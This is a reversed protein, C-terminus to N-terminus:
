RAPRPARRRRRLALALGGAALTALARGHEDVSAAGIRCACAGGRIEEGPALGVGGGGSGGTGGGGDTDAYCQGTPACVRGPGCESGGLSCAGCQGSTCVLDGCDANTSCDGSPRPVCFGDTSCLRDTSCDSDDVCPVGIVCDGDKCIGDGPCEDNVTCGGPPVVVDPVDDGNADPPQCAAAEGVDLDGEGLAADDSVSRFYLNADCTSSLGVLSIDVMAQLYGNRASNILIPDIDQGTEATAQNPMPTVGVYATQAQDWTWIQAITGNGRVGIVHEYGGPSTDTTFRADIEAAAATGGTAMNRDADIFVYVTVQASAANPDSVYVRAWFRQADTAAYATRVDIAQEPQEFNLGDGAVDEAGYIWYQEGTKDIAVAENLRPTTRMGVWTQAAASQPALGGLLLAALGVGLVAGRRRRSCALTTQNM